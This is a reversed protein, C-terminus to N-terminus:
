LAARVYRWAFSTLAGHREPDHDDIARALAAMGAEVEDPTRAGAHRVLPALSFLLRDRERLEAESPPRRAPSPMPPSGLPRM